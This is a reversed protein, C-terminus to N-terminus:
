QTVYTGPEIKMYHGYPTSITQPGAYPDVIVNVQKTDAAQTQGDRSWPSIVRHEDGHYGNGGNHIHLHIEKQHPTWEQNHHQTKSAFLAGIKAAGAVLLLKLIILTVALTKIGVLAAVTAWTAAAGLQFVLPILAQMMKKFPRGFTRRSYELM